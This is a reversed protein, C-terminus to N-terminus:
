LPASSLKQNQRLAWSVIFIMLTTYIVTQAALAVSNLVNFDVALVKLLPGFIESRAEVTSGFNDTITKLGHLVRPLWAFSFAMALVIQQGVSTCLVSILPWLMLFYEPMHQYFSSFFVVLPVALITAVDFSHNQRRYLTFLSLIVALQLVLSLLLSSNKVAILADPYAKLILVWFNAAYAADPTFDRIPVDGGNALANSITIYYVLVIPSIAVIGQFIRRVFPLKGHFIIVYFLPIIFFIKAILVGAVLTSIALSRKKMTLLVAACLILTQAIVDEQVFLVTAFYQHPSIIFLCAVCLAITKVTFLRHSQFVLISFTIFEVTIMLLRISLVDNFQQSYLKYLPWEVVWQFPPYSSILRATGNLIALPDNIILKHFFVDSAIEQGGIFRFFLALMGLRVCLFAVLLLLSETPSLLNKKEVM